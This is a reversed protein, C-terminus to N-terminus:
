GLTALLANAYADGASDGHYAIPDDSNTVHIRYSDGHSHLSFEASDGLRARLLHRLQDERPIWIAEDALVYDLAWEVAGVFTIAPWGHLVETQAMLDSIVFLREGIGEVPVMFFDHLSPKWALGATKLQRAKDLSIM